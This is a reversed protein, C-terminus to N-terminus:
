LINHQLTMSTNRESPMSTMKLIARVRRMNPLGLTKLNLIKYFIDNLKISTKPMVKM